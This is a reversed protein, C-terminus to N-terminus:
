LISHQCASVIYITIHQQIYLKLFRIKNPKYYHFLNLRFHFFIYITNRRAKFFSIVSSFTQVHRNQHVRANFLIFYFPLSVLTFCLCTQLYINCAFIKTYMSPFGINSMSIDSIAPILFDSIPFLFVFVPSIHKKLSGLCTHPVKYMYICVLYNRDPGSRM